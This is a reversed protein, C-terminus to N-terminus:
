PSAPLNSSPSPPKFSQGHDRRLIPLLGPAPPHRRPPLASLTPGKPPTLRGMHSKPERRGCNGREPVAAHREPFYSPHVWVEKRSLFPPEKPHARSAKLQTVSRTDGWALGQAPCSTWLSVSPPPQVRKTQWGQHWSLYLTLLCALPTCGAGHLLPAGLSSHQPATCLFRCHGLPPGPSSPPSSGRSLKPRPRGDGAAWAGGM